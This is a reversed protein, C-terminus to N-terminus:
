SELSVVVTRPPDGGLSTASTSASRLPATTRSALAPPSDRPSTTLDPLSSLTFALFGGLTALAESVLLDVAAMPPKRAKVRLLPGNSGAAGIGGSSSGSGSGHHYSVSM